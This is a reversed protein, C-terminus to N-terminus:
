TCFGLFLQSNDFSLLRWPRAVSGDPDPTSLIWYRWFNLREAILVSDSFKEIIAPKIPDDLHQCLEILHENALCCM